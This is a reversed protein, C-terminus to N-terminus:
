FNTVSLSATQMLFHEFVRQLSRTVLIAMYAVYWGCVSQWVSIAFQFSLSIIRAIAFKRSSLQSSCKTSKSTAYGEDIWLVVRELGNWKCQPMLGGDLGIQASEASLGEADDNM